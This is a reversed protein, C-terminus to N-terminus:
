THKDAVYSAGYAEPKTKAVFGSGTVMGVVEKIMERTDGHEGVDIHIELNYNPTNGNLKKKILPVFAGAFDLSTMTESYIKERLSHINSVYKRIWFYKGGFGKRHVLVATVLNIKRNKLNTNTAEHSDTGIVLSYEKDPDEELFEKITELVEYVSLQGHTISEFKSKELDLSDMLSNSKIIAYANSAFPAM